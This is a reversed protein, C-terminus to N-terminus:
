DGDFANVISTWVSHFFVYLFFQRSAERKVLSSPRKKIKSRRM